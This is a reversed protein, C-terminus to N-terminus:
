AVPTTEDVRGYSALDGASYPTMLNSLFSTLVKHADTVEGSAHTVAWLDSSPAVGFDPFVQTCPNADSHTPLTAMVNTIQATFAAKMNVTSGPDTDLGVVSSAAVNVYAGFEREMIAENATIASGDAYWYLFHTVTSYTYTLVKTVTPTTTGVFAKVSMGAIRNKVQETTMGTGPVTKDKFEDETYVDRTLSHDKWVNAPGSCPATTLRGSFYGVKKFSDVYSTEDATMVRGGRTLVTKIYNRMSLATVGVYLEGPTDNHAGVSVGRPWCGIKEQLPNGKPSFGFCAPITLTTALDALYAATESWRIMSSDGTPNSVNLGYYNCSSAGLSGGTTNIIAGQVSLLDAAKVNFGWLNKLILYLKSTIFKNIPIVWGDFSAGDNMWIVVAGRVGGTKTNYSGLVPAVKLKYGIAACEDRTFGINAYTPLRSDGSVHSLQGNSTSGILDANAFTEPWSCIEISSTTKAVYGFGYNAILAAYDASLRDGEWEYDLASTVVLNPSYAFLCRSGWLVSHLPKYGKALLKTYLGKKM